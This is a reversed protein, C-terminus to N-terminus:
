PWPWAGDRGSELLPILRFAQDTLGGFTHRNGSGSPTAGHRYGGFNWMYVPTEKPVLADVATERMGGYGWGNSPLYGPRTQEDTVIVVRDHGRLHAKVASPIDTGNLQRFRDIVKLVSEGRGFRVPGNEIGFEVLDANEARLAVATGFVAAGDAWPMDSRESMKAMWMSPSRDVLVLTRGPLAPVNALSANLAQELPYAWRLSPAARYASLFRFPLMRSRAVQEPDALRAAVQDAVADSVGAQDFNRLNRALAMLGMSPIVAEWAAADMPGQLWGALAEWTIGADALTASVADPLGEAIITRRENVPIAMLHARRRLMGLTEPIDEDRGHRRDIAHKFLDGQWPKGADPSPHTLELVDGFRFGRADTDYKLLSREGYMRRVADGIGRKVPQPVKRGYKSTWYALLEGPEDARLLVSDVVRRNSAISYGLSDDGEDTHQNRPLPQAPGHELRGRVFEAAGVLSASRMNADTRLWRLLGATWVPDEVALRQVLTCYRDDREKAAEYFTDEGVMNSVALLFLEGKADREYGVAGEFTRATPSRGTKVPSSVAPRTGAKNFKAM